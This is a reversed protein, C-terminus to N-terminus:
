INVTGKFIYVFSGPLPGVAGNTKKKLHCQCRRKDEFEIMYGPGDNIRSYNRPRLEGWLNMPSDSLIRYNVDAIFQEGNSTYLTGIM